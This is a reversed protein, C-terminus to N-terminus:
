MLLYEQKLSEVSPCKLLYHLKEMSILSTICVAVWFINEGLFLCGTDVKSSPDLNQSIVVIPPTFEM